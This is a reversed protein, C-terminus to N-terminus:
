KPNPTSLWASKLGGVVAKTSTVKGLPATVSETIGEDQFMVRVSHAVHQAQGDAVVSASDMADLFNTHAGGLVPSTLMELWPPTATDNASSGTGHSAAEKHAIRSLVGPFLANRRAKVELAWQKENLPAPGPMGTEPMRTLVSALTKNKESVVWQSLWHLLPVRLYPKPTDEDASLVKLSTETSVSQLDLGFETIYAAARHHLNTKLEKGGAALRDVLYLMCEQFTDWLHNPHHDRLALVDLPLLADVLVAWWLTPSSLILGTAPIGCLDVSAAMHRCNDLIKGADPSWTASTFPFIDAPRLEAAQAAHSKAAFPHPM